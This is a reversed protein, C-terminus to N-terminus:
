INPRNDYGVIISVKNNHVAFTDTKRSSAIKSGKTFSYFHELIFHSKIM